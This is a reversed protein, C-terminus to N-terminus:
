SVDFFWPLHILHGALFQVTGLYKGRLPCVIAGDHQVVRFQLPLTETLLHDARPPQDQMRKYREKSNVLWSHWTM